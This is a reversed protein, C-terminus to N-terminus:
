LVMHELYYINKSHGFLCVSKYKIFFEFLGDYHCRSIIKIFNLHNYFLTHHVAKFITIFRLYM